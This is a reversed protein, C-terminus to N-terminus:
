EGWLFLWAAGAESVVGGANPDGRSSTATGTCTGSPPPPRVSARGPPADTGSWRPTRSWGATRLATGIAAAAM